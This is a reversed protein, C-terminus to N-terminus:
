LYRFWYEEVMRFNERVQQAGALVGGHGSLLYDVDLKMIRRISEKLRAGSGGPLDTRGIGQPFVVDGTFLVKHAPWYLCISGPTHGPAEIVEFRDNGLELDGSKLFFDPEPIKYYSGALDLIYHYDVLSMTFQTPEKFLTVSELHDPHGHTVLVVDISSLPIGLTDLGKQVHGFLHAHGPDVLIRKSSDILFTNCNNQTYDEWIFAYLGDFLKALM